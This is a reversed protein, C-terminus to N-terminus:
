DLRCQGGGLVLSKWFGWHSDRKIMATHQCLDGSGDAKTPSPCILVGPYRSGWQLQPNGSRVVWSQYAVEGAWTISCHRPTAFRPAWHRPSWRNRVSPPLLPDPRSAGALSTSVVMPYTILCCSQTQLATLGYMEDASLESFFLVFCFLLLLFAVGVRLLKPTPM